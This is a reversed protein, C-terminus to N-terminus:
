FHPFLFGNVRVHYFYLYHLCYDLFTGCFVEFNWTLYLKETHIQENNMQVRLIDDDNKHMMQLTSRRHREIKIGSSNDFIGASTNICNHCM